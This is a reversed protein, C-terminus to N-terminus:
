EDEEDDLQPIHIYVSGDSTGIALRHRIPHWSTCRIQAGAPALRVPRPVLPLLRDNWLPSSSERRYCNVRSWNSALFCQLASAIFQLRGYTYALMNGSSTGSSTGSGGDSGDSSNAVRTSTGVSGSLVRRRREQDYSQRVLLWSYEAWVHQLLEGSSCLTRTSEGDGRLERERMAHEVSSLDLVCQRIKEAEEDSGAVTERPRCVARDWEIKRQKLAIRKMEEPRLGTNRNAHAEEECRKIIEVAELMLIRGYTPMRAHLEDGETGSRQDAPHALFQAAIEGLTPSPAPNSMVESLTHSHGVFLGDMEDERQFDRGRDDDYAVTCADSDELQVRIKTGRAVPAKARFMFTSEEGDEVSWREVNTEGNNPDIQGREL